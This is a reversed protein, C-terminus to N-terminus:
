ERSKKKESFFVLFSRIDRAEVDDENVRFAGKKGPNPNIVRKTAATAKREAAARVLFVFLSLSLRLSLDPSRRPLKNSAVFM